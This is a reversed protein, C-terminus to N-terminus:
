ILRGLIRLKDEVCKVFHKVTPDTATDEEPISIDFTDELDLVLDVLDLSDGHLDNYFHSDEDVYNTGVRCLVFKVREIVKDKIQDLTYPQDLM